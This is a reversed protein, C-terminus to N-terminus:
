AYYSAPKKNGLLLKIHKQEMKNLETMEPPIVVSSTGTDWRLAKTHKATCDSGKGEADNPGKELQLLWLAKVSM